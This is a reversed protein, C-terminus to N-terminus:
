DGNGLIKRKKYCREHLKETLEKCIKNNAYLRRFNWIYNYASIVHKYNTCSNIVKIAKEYAKKM